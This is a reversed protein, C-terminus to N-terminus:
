AGIRQMAEALELWEAELRALQWTLEGQRVLKARLEDKATDAYAGGSALWTELATKETTAAELEREITSQRTALPRRTEALRQRTQAEIRKQARRDAPASVPIPADARERRRQGLVWDRYDDLDGDFPM